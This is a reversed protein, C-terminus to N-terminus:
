RPKKIEHKSDLNLSILSPLGDRLLVLSDGDRLPNQIKEPDCVSGQQLHMIGGTSHLKQLPVGYWYVGPMPFLRLFFGQYCSWNPTNFLKGACCWCQKFGAGAAILFTGHLKSVGRL